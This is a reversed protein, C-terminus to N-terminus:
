SLGSSSLFSTHLFTSPQSHIRFAKLKAKRVGKLKSLNVADNNFKLANGAPGPTVLMPTAYHFVRLQGPFRVKCSVRIHLRELVLPPNM